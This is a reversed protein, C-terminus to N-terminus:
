QPGGFDDGVFYDPDVAPTQRDTAGRRLEAFDVKPFFVEEQLKIPGGPWVGRKSNARGDHISVVAVWISVCFPLQKAESPKVSKGYVDELSTKQVPKPSSANAWAFGPRVDDIDSPDIEPLVEAVADILKSPDGLPFNPSMPVILVMPDEDEYRDIQDIDLQYSVSGALKKKADYRDYPM